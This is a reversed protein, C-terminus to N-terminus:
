GNLENKHEEVVPTTIYLGIHKKSLGFYVVCVRVLKIILVAAGCDTM